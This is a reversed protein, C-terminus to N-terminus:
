SAASMAQSLVRRVTEIELPKTLIRNPLGELFALTEHRVLDGTAFVFRRMLEPREAAVREFLEQGCVNPMCLDTVVLDFDDEILRNWAEGGDQAMTVLAGADTLLRALLELVVPEDEAVLIHRGRLLSGASKEEGVKAKGLEEASPGDVIPLWIRFIAGRKGVPSDLVEITGGHEQVIGYSVALGLGTGQGYDKTTFFPDFLRERVDEPIGPGDDEIEIFIRGCEVGTRLVISGDRRVARVAQEANNLINLIVQDLQHFDFSTFPLNPDLELRTVISSSRLHYSKLDLVKEVCENVSQYKKEPAHKRAFSLLKFVIKQCRLASEVIRDLDRIQSPDEAQNRLIEAYGVVGSLPNNLEHAVGAVVEGLSSLREAQALSHEVQRLKTVDRGIWVQGAREGGPSTLSAGVLSVAIERGDARKHRIEFPEDSRPVGALEESGLLKALEKGLAAQPELGTLRSGGPNFETVRGATDTAVIMDPSADLVRRLTDGTEKANRYLMANKLANASVAAVVRCFRITSQDFAKPQPSKCVLAGLVERGVMLPMVLLSRYGQETLTERVSRVLPHTEIEDVVVPRKTEIAHRVEPYKGLDIELHEAEPHGKSAAVLCGPRSDDALLISCSPTKLLDGVQDVISHMVASVDLTSTITDTIELLAWLGGSDQLSKIEVAPARKRQVREALYGFHLAASALLPLFLADLPTVILAGSVALAALMGGLAITGLLTKFRDAALTALMVVMFYGALVMPRPHATGLLAFGILLTDAFLLRGSEVWHEFVAPGFLHVTMAGIVVSMSLIACWSWSPALAALVLLTTAILLWRRLVLAVGSDKAALEM